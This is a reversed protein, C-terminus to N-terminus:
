RQHHPPAIPGLDHTPYLNGAYDRAMEGRWTLNGDSDFALRRCDHVYGCEAYTIEGFLGREVMRRVMLMHPWYCCNEALMYIRGTEEHARVLGWCEDLTMAAAVESLVHKGARMTAICIEAHSQMGTGCIVADLDDRQLMRLYDKPGRLYGEPTNSRANKVIDIARQLNPPKIDCLAPVQAGAKLALRLLHTGRGGVGVVGLRVPDQKAAGLVTPALGTALGATAGVRLMQRRNFRGNM